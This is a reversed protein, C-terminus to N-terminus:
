SFTNVGILRYSEYFPHLLFVKQRGRGNFCSDNNMFDRMLQSIFTNLFITLPYITEQRALVKDTLWQTFYRVSIPIDGLTVFVTQKENKPDVIELPGLLVRFKKFEERFRKLRKIEEQKIDDSTEVDEGTQSEIDAAREDEAAAAPASLDLAEVAAITEEM